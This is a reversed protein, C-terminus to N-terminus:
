MGILTIYELSGIEKFENYQMLRHEKSIFISIKEAWFWSL